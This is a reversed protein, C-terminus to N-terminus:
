REKAVRLDFKVTVGDGDPAAFHQRQQNVQGDTAFWLATILQRREQTGFESLRALRWCRCENVM